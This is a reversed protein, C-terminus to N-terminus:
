EFVENQFNGTRQWNIDVVARSPLEKNFMTICIYGIVAIM